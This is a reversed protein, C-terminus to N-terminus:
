QNYNLQVIGDDYLIGRNRSFEVSSVSNWNAIRRRERSYFQM